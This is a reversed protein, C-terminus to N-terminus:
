ELKLCLDRFQEVRETLIIASNLVSFKQKLEDEIMSSELEVKAHDVFGGQHEWGESRDVSWLRKQWSVIAPNHAGRLRRNPAATPAEPDVWHACNDPVVSKRGLTVPAAVIFKSSQM